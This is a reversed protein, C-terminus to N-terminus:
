IIYYVLMLSKHVCQSTKAVYGTKHKSGRSEELHIVPSSSNIIRWPLWVLLTCLRQRLHVSTEQFIKHYARTDAQTHARQISLSVPVYHYWMRNATRNRAGHTLRNEAGWGNPSTGLDTHVQTKWATSHFSVKEVNSEQKKEKKRGKKQLKGRRKREQSLEM